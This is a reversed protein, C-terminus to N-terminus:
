DATSADPLPACVSVHSGDTATTAFCYTGTFYACDSPSACGPTCVDGNATAMCVNAFGLTNAGGAGLGACDSSSACPKTCWPRSCSLGAICAPYQPGCPDGDGSEDCVPCDRTLCSSFVQLTSVAAPFQNQCATVCSAGGRCGDECSLLNTCDTSNACQELDSCCSTTACVGCQSGGASVSCSAGDAGADNGGSSSGGIVTTPCTSGDVPVCDGLESPRTGNSSCALIVLLVTVASAQLVGSSM